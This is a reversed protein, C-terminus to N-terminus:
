VTNSKTAAIGSGGLVVSNNTASVSNYIGGIIASTISNGTITSQQAGVIVCETSSDVTSNISGLISSSISNTILGGNGALLTSYTSNEISSSLSGTISSGASSGSVANLVGGGIFSYTSDGSNTSGFVVANTGQADNGSGNNQLVSYAGVGQVLVTSASSVLVFNANIKNRGTEPADGGLITQLGSIM